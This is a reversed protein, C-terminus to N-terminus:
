PIVGSSGNPLPVSSDPTYMCSPGPPVLKLIFSPIMSYEKTSVMAGLTAGVSDCAGVIDKCGEICGDMLAAGVIVGEIEGFGEATGDM